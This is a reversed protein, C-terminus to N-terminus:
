CPGSNITKILNDLKQMQARLIVFMGSLQETAASTSAQLITHGPIANSFNTIATQLGTIDAAIVNYPTLLAIAISAAKDHVLQMKVVAELASGKEFDTNTYSVLAMNPLDNLDDYYAHAGACVHEAKLAAVAWLAHKNATTGSKDQGQIGAAANIGTVTTKVNLVAASIKINASWLTNNNDMVTTTANTMNLYNLQNDTM